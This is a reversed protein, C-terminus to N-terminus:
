PNALTPPTLKSADVGCTGFLNIFMTPDNAGNANVEGMDLNDAMCNAQEETMGALVLQTVLNTRITADDPVTGSDDATAVTDDAVTDDAAITDDATAADDGSDDGPEDTTAADSNASADGTVDGDDDGGCAGSAFALAAVIVFARRKVTDVTRNVGRRVARASSCQVSDDPSTMADFSV